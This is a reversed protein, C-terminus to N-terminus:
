EYLVGEIKNIREKGLSRREREIATLPRENREVSNIIAVQYRESKLVEEYRRKKGETLGGGALKNYFLDSVTLGLAAIVDSTECGAFCHVLIRDDAENIALSPSKDQHAPCCAMWKGKGGTVQELRDLVDEAKM